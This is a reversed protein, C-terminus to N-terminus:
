IWGMAQAYMWLGVGGAIIAYLIGKTIGDKM